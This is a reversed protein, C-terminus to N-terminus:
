RKVTTRGSNVVVEDLLTEVPENDIFLRKWISYNLICWFITANRRNPKKQLRRIVDAGFIGNTLAILPELM